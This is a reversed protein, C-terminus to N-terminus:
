MRIGIILIDDVQELEGRWNEINEDLFKEQKSMSLKNITLILHRFRRFKFKKGIPGGFQDPYGDSFLYVMDDERYQFVHSEFKQETTSASITGVSFRNGKITIIKNDRVIYLPNMAGAYEIQKLNKDIVCLSVDMGDKVEQENLNKSFTESVGSNLQNLIQAPDEVGQDKTINRLLDFGIISMFAGPVGHGTCDVAAIFIKNNKEAIWYFDGSVIDKPKYLIFSQPLLKRFLFSSPMMAEQIRKAYNISDTISKNKITLEEKQRAIELAAMQKAMLTQNASKLKKTRVRIINYVVLVGFLVYSIYAWVSFLPSSHVKIKLSVGNDNWILDNNAAKVTLIYDGAALKSFTQFSQNGLEVWEDSLGKMQYKYKNKAPNTFELAAFFITITHDNYDLEIEDVHDLSLTHIGENNNKTYELLVVRPKITNETLSDPYFSNLGGTGGIYLKGDESKFISNFNLELSGLGDAKDYSKIINTEKELVAFGYGTSMWINKNDDEIINYILDSPLGDTKTYITFSTDKKNFKNLGSGTAIWLLGDSDELVDDVRNNSITNPNRLDTQYRLFVGTVPNYRNLGGTATGVWIFGERDEVVAYIHNDSLSEDNGTENTFIEPTEEEMNIKYLGGETGVWMNNYKDEIISNIRNDNFLVDFKSKVKNSFISKLPRFEDTEKDYINLGNRTGVWIYGRSDKMIVHIFDNLLGRKNGAKIHEMVGTEKNYLNLGKGWLGIWLTKDEEYIAAMDKHALGFNHPTFLNFKKNKLDFRNIAAGYTGVWLIHSKDEIISLIMDNSISNPDTAKHLFHSFIGTKLDLM